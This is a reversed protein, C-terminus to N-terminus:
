AAGTLARACLERLTADDEVRHFPIHQAALLQVWEPQEAWDSLAPEDFVIVIAIVQYGRERLHGLAGVMELTPRTLIALVTMNRPLFRTFQAALEALGFGNSLELRALTERLTQFQSEGRGPLLAVPEPGPDEQDTAEIQAASREGFERKTREAKYRLAADVGNTLLGFSQGTEVLALGLSAATVIALDERFPGGTGRYQTEDLDLLITAGAVASPQFVKVQLEGMRASARWHIRNLPQGPEYPRVGTILTPDEYLRHTVHIEGLPRPSAIDYAPVEVVRPLVMLYGPDSAIRFRRHLGFLDGTELLLPGLEYYGRRRCKTTYEIKEEKRPKLTFLKMRKGTVELAPPNQVLWERALMDECLLWPIKLIGRNALTVEVRVVAGIEVMEESVVRSTIISEIWRKSFFRSILLVGLLVYMAYVLLGLKFIFGVALLILSTVIWKM